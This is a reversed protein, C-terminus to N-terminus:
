ACLVTETENGDLKSVEYALDVVARTIRRPGLWRNSMKHCKDNPRSLHVFDGVTFSPTVINTMKKARNRSDIGTVYKHAAERHQHTERSKYSGSHIDEHIIPGSRIWCTFRQPIQYRHISRTSEELNRRRALPSGNLINQMLDIIEPWDEPGLKLETSIARCAALISRNVSEFTGNGWPFYPISRHRIRYDNALAQM